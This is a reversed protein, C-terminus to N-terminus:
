ASRLLGKWNYCRVHTGQSSNRNGHHRGQKIVNVPFAIWRPGFGQHWIWAPLTLNEAVSKIFQKEHLINSNPLSSISFFGHARKLSKTMGKEFLNRSTRFLSSSQWPSTHPGSDQTLSVLEGEWYSPYWEWCQIQNAMRLSHSIFTLPVSDPVSSPNLAMDYAIHRDQWSLAQPSRREWATNLRM